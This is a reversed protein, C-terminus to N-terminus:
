PRALVARIGHVHRMVSLLRELEATAYAVTGRRERVDAFTADLARVAEALAVQGDREDAGDAGDARALDALATAVAELPARVLAVVPDSGGTAAVGVIGRAEALLADARDLGAELAAVTATHGPERAADRVTARHTRVSADLRNLRARVVSRDDADAVGLYVALAGGALALAEVTDARVGARLQGSARRPFIVVGAAVAVVCGLPVNLGRSLALDWADTGPIATVILTTAAALRAGADLGVATMVVYTVGVAVGSWVPGSGPVAYVALGVPLALLTATVRQVAAGVSAGFTGASAVVASVAGWYPEELGILRGLWLTVAAAVAM